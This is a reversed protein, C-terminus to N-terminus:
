KRRSSLRQPSASSNAFRMARATAAPSPAYALAAEITRHKLEHMVQQVTIEGTAAKDWLEAARGRKLSHKSFHERIRVTKNLEQWRNVYNSTPRLQKLVSLVRAPSSRDILAPENLLQRLDGAEPIIQQHDPRAETTRHTKTVGWCILIGSQGERLIAREINLAFVDSVRAGAMFALRIAMRTPRDVDKRRLVEEVIARTMPLAKSKVEVKAEHLRLGRQVTALLQLTDSRLGGRNQGLWKLHGVDTAVTARKVKDALRQELWTRIASDTPLGVAELQRHVRVRAGWTSKSFASFMMKAIRSEPSMAFLSAVQDRLEPRKKGVASNRGRKAM